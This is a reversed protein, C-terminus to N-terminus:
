GAAFSGGTANGIGASIGGAVIRGAVIRGAVIRGAVIGGSVDALRAVVSPFPLYFVDLVTM